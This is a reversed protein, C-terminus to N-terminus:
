VSFYLAKAANMLELYQAGSVLEAVDDIAETLRQGALRRDARVAPPTGFAHALVVDLEDHMPLPDIQITEFIARLEADTMTFAPDESWSQSM